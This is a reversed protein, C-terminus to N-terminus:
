STSSNIQTPTSSILKIQSELIEVNDQPMNIIAEIGDGSRSNVLTCSSVPLGSSTCLSIPKGWSYDVEYLPFGCWSAFACLEIEGNMLLTVLKSFENLFNDGTRAKTIYDENVKKIASRLQTVLDHFEGNSANFFAIAGMTCNGFINELVLPPITRGRLNVPHAAVFTKKADRNESNAVDIFHKWIFASVVEVRTPNKVNSGSPSTAAQKLAELKEKAFVFRKTVIKNENTGRPSHYDPFERAPFYNALDLSFRPFEAEGRCSAAWANLFTMVSACDALKHSVCVGIAMGGCAFFTLKVAVLAAGPLTGATADAALHKLQEIIPEQLADNLQAQVRAEIFEAGADNCDIVSGDQDIRGALPYFVTLTNSLSQKLQQSIQIQNTSNLGRLEDAEYFFIIPVYTPSSLQDLYSLKLKRLHTPTESSPKIIEKSIVQVSAEM